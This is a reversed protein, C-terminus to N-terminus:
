ILGLAKGILGIVGIAIVIMVLKFQWSLGEPSSTTDFKQQNESSKM